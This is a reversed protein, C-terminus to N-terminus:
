DCTDYLFCTNIDSLSVKPHRFTNCGHLSFWPEIPNNQTLKLASYGRSRNVFANNHLDTASRSFVWKCILRHSDMTQRGCGKAFKHEDAGPLSSEHPWVSLSLKGGSSKLVACFHAAVPANSLKGIFMPQSPSLRRDPPVDLAFRSGFKDNNQFLYPCVQVYLLVFVTELFM